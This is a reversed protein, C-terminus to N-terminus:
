GMKQFSDKPAGCVPCVWSDPLDEFATGAKVGNAPDGQEPDYVYGCVSCEYKAMTAREKITREEPAQTEAAVFTPATKPSKGGKMKRYYDYTMPNGQSLVEAEVVEGVFITHTGVEMSGVVKCELASVANELVVPAGTVGIKYKAGQLKDIERGSKFGFLGVFPMPTGESLISVTFVKSAEVFDHTLNEKNLTVSVRPPDSTVQFVTNAIQGNMKGDRVSCIVYMGYSCKQVAVRDMLGGGITATEM